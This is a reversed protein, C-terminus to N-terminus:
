GQGDGIAETSNITLAAITPPNVKAGRTSTEQILAHIRGLLEQVKFPKQIVDDQLGMLVNAGVYYRAHSVSGADMAAQIQEERVNATVAIVPLRIGARPGRTMASGLLGKGEREKQRILRTAALGDLIPMQSVSILTHHIRQEQLM